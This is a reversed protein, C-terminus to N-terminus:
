GLERTIEKRIAERVIASMSIGINGKVKERDVIDKLQKLTEFDTVFSFQVPYHIERSMIEFEEMKLIDRELNKRISQRIYESMYIKQKKAEKYVEKLILSDIKITIAETFMIKRKQYEHKECKQHCSDCLNKWAEPKMVTYDKPKLINHMSLRRNYVKLNLM